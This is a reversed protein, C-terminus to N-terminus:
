EKCSLIRKCVDAIYVDKNINNLFKILSEIFNNFFSTCLDNGNCGLQFVNIMDVLPEILQKMIKFGQSCLSCPLLNKALMSNAKTNDVCASSALTCILEENIAIKGLKIVNSLIHNVYVHCITSTQCDVDYIIGLTLNVAAISMRAAYTLIKCEKCKQSTNLDSAIIINKVTEDIISPTDENDSHEQPMEYNDLLHKAVKLENYATLMNNQSEFFANQSKKFKEKALEYNIKLDNNFLYNHKLENSYYTKQGKTEI